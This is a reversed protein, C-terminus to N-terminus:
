AESYASQIVPVTFWWGNGFPEVSIPGQIYCNTYLDHTHTTMNKIALVGSRYSSIVYQKGTISSGTTLPGAYRLITNVLTYDETYCTFNWSKAGLAESFSPIGASPLEIGNYCIPAPTAFDSPDLTSSISSSLNLYYWIQALGIDTPIISFTAYVSPTSTSAIIDITIIVSDGPPVIGFNSLENTVFVHRYILTGGDTFLGIENITRETASGNTFTNTYTLKGTSYTATVTQQEFGHDTYATALATDTYAEATLGSGLGVKNIIASSNDTLIRALIDTGTTTIM